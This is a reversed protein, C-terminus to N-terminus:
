LFDLSFYHKVQAQDQDHNQFAKHVRAQPFLTISVSVSYTKM